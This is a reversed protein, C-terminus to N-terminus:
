RTFIFSLHYFIFSIEKTVPFIDLHLILEEFLKDNVIGSAAQSLSGCHKLSQTVLKDFISFYLPHCLFCFGSGLPTADKAYHYM